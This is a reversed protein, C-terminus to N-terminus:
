WTSLATRQWTNTAVCVYIFGNVIRIEGLTGTATASAPATNLASLKFQTAQSVGNVSFAQNSNTASSSISVNGNAFIRMRQTITGSTQATRFIISSNNNAGGDFYM